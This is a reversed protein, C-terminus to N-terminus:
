CSFMWYCTVMAVVVVNVVIYDHIAFISWIEHFGNSLIYRHTYLVNFYLIYTCYM